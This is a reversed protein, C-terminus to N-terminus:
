LKITFNNKRLVKATDIYTLLRDWNKENIEIDEDRNNCYVHFCDSMCKILHEDGILYHKSLKQFGRVGIMFQRRDYDSGLHRANINKAMHEIIELKKENFEDSVPYGRDIFHAYRFWENFAESNDKSELVSPFDMICAFGYFFEDSFYNM